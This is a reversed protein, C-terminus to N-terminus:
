KFTELGRIPEPLEPRHVVCDPTMLEDLVEGNRQEVAEAFYRRVVAKHAETSM